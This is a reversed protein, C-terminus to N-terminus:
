TCELGRKNKEGILGMTGSEFVKVHRTDHVTQTLNASNRLKM